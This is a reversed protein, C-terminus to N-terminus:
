QVGVEGNGVQLLGHEIEEVLDEGGLGSAEKVASYSVGGGVGCSAKEGESEDEGEPGARGADGGEHILEIGDVFDGFSAGVPFCAGDGHEEHEDEGGEDDARERKDDEASDYLGPEGGEDAPAM